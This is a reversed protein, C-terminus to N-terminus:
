LDLDEKVREYDARVMSLLFQNHHKGSKFVASRMLGEVKFGIKIMMRMAGDHEELVEGKCREMRLEEFAFKVIKLGVQTGWGRGAKQSDLKVGSWFCTGNQYNIESISAYGVIEDEGKATIAFYIANPSDGLMLDQVWKADREYSVPRKNGGLLSEMSELRRLDNVFRADELRFPRFDIAFEM